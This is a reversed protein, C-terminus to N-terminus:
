PMHLAPLFGQRFPESSVAVSGSFPFQLLLATLMGAGVVIAVCTVLIFEVRTNETTLFCTMAISVIATLFLLASFPGPLAANVQGLRSRRQAVADNLQVVASNYFAIRTETDPTYAQLAAFIGTVLRSTDPDQGGDHMLKFERDHVEKVYAKVAAHVRKQAELPFVYSDRDIQALDNAERAVNDRAGQHQDYLTVIAFALVLAFLTLVMGAVGAVVGSDVSSRWHGLFRRTFLLGLISVVLVGGVLTLFLAWAPM